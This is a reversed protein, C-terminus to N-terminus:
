GRCRWGPCRGVAHGVSVVTAISAPSGARLRAALCIALPWQGVGALPSLLRNPPEGAGYGVRRGSAPPVSGPWMTPWSRHHHHSGSGATGAPGSRGPAPPVAGPRAPRPRHRLHRRRIVDISFCDHPNVGGPRTGPWSAASSPKLRFSVRFLSCHRADL